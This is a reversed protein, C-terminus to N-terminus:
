GESVVEAEQVPGIAKKTEITAKRMLDEFSMSQGGPTVNLQNNNIQVAPGKKGTIGTAEGVFNLKDKDGPKRFKGTGQCVWCDGGIGHCEGCPLLQPKADEAAGQMIAPLEEHLVMTAELWKKNRYMDVIDPAKFGAKAALKKTGWTRHGKDLILSVLDSARPDPSMLAMELLGERGGFRSEMLRWLGDKRQPALATATKKRRKGRSVQTSRAPSEVVEPNNSTEDSM